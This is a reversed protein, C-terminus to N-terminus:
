EGLKLAKKKRTASLIGGQPFYKGKLVKAILSDPNMILRWGQKGLMAQNFLPMDRFGMGGNGKPSSLKSWRQWHLKHSDVSSGWWFNSIYTKM